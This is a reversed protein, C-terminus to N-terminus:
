LRRTSVRVSLIRYEIEHYRAEASCQPRQCGQRSTVGRCYETCFITRPRASCMQLRAKTSCHQHVRARGCQRRWQGGGGDMAITM